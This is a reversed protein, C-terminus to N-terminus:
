VMLEGVVKGDDRIMRVRIHERDVEVTTVTGIGMRPGGGIVIPYHHGTAPDTKAITYRHTHGGLYLDAKGENLQAHFTKRVEVTTSGEDSCYGPIHFMGIRWRADKWAATAIERRLYEMQTARYPEFDVMGAFQASADVKDEGTDLVVFRAPGFSFAYYYQDGPMGLYKKMERSYAGRVEHNGRAYIFPTEKAFMETAPDLFHEVMQKESQMTDTIDGNLFVFDFHQDAVYSHLKRWQALNDHLDNFMVFRIKDAHPNWTTFSYVPTNVIPGLKISYAEMERIEEMCVRYFYRTGPKLGTLRIKHLLIGVHKQGDILDDARLGLKETPGYEVYAYAPLHTMWMITMADATPDQLYPGTRLLGSGQVPPASTENAALNGTEALGVGAALVTLGSAKIFDRRDM